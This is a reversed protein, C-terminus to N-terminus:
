VKEVLTKGFLGNPFAALVALVYAWPSTAPDIALASAVLGVAALGVFAGVSVFDGQAFNLTRTTTYTLSFGLAILAYIGGMTLGGILAQLLTTSM